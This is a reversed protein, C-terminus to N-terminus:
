DRCESEKTMERGKSTEANVKRTQRCPSCDTIERGRSTEANVKRTQRCPSGSDSHSATKIKNTYGKIAVNFGCILPNNYMLVTIPVSAMSPHATVNPVALLPRPPSPGWGTGKESYWIYCGV